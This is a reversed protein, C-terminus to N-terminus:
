TLNPYSVSLAHAIASLIIKYDNEVEVHL